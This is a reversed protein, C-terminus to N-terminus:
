SEDIMMSYRIADSGKPLNITGWAAALLADDFKSSSKSITYSLMYFSRDCFPESLKASQKSAKSFTQFANISNSCTIKIDKGSYVKIDILL